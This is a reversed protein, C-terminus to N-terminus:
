KTMLINMVTYKDSGEETALGDFLPIFVAKLSDTLLFGDKVMEAVQQTHRTSVFNGLEGKGYQERITNATSSIIIAHGKDINYKSVLIASEDEISMYELEVLQFRDLLARDLSSTGVYEGGLNATAIFVVGENVAIEREDDSGAVYINLRKRFDLCPFLINNSMIPARNIEDLLILAKPDKIAQTFQAYEFVSKGDKLRHVGMLSAIPDQMAGMDFMYLNRELRNALLTALITKGTGAPGTLITNINSRVNRLLHYWKEPSISFGDEEKTPPNYDENAKMKALYTSRTTKEGHNEAPTAELNRVNIQYTQWMGIIVDNAKEIEPIVVVRKDTEVLVVEDAKYCTSKKLLNTTAIISNVPLGEKYVKDIDVQWEENCLEDVSNRITFIQMTQHPLVKVKMKGKDFCLKLFWVKQPNATAM